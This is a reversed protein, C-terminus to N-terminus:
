KHEAVRDVPDGAAGTYLTRSENAVTCVCYDKGM